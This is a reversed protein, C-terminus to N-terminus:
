AESARQPVQQFRFTIQYTKGLNGQADMFTYLDGPEGEIAILYGPIDSKVLAESLEAFTVDPLAKLYSLSAEKFDYIDHDVVAEKILEWAAAATMDPFTSLPNKRPNQCGNSTHDQM